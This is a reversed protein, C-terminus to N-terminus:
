RLTSLFHIKEESLRLMVTVAIDSDIKMLKVGQDTHFLKEIPAHKKKVASLIMEAADRSIDFKAQLAGLAEGQSGANFLIPVSTKILDRDFGDIAYADSPPELGMTLYGINAHHQSYDPECTEERNLIIFQRLDKRKNQWFGHCRGYLDFSGRCFSRIVYLPTTLRGTDDFQHHCGIIKENMGPWHMETTSMFENIRRIENRISHTYTTDEYGILRSEYEIGYRKVKCKIDTGEVFLARLRIPDHLVHRVELHGMADLLRPLAKFSSQGPNDGKHSLPLRHNHDILKAKALREVQEPVHYKNYAMGNYRQMGSYRNNNCPYTISRGYRRYAILSALIMLRTELSGSNPARHLFFPRLADLAQSRDVFKWEAKYHISNWDKKAETDFESENM